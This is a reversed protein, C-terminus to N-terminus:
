TGFILRINSLNDLFKRAYKFRLIIHQTKRTKNKNMTDLNINNFLAITKLKFIQYMQSLTNKLLYLTVAKM